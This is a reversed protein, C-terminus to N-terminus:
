SRALLLFVGHLHSKLHLHCFIVGSSSVPVTIKLLTTAAQCCSGLGINAPGTGPIQTVQKSLIMQPPWDDTRPWGRTLQDLDTPRYLPRCLCYHIESHLCNPLRLIHGSKVVNEIPNNYLISLSNVLGVGWVGATKWENIMMGLLNQSSAGFVTFDDGTVGLLGPIGRHCQPGTM